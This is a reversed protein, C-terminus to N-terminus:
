FAWEAQSWDADASAGPFHTERIRLSRLPPKEDKEDLDRMTLPLRAPQLPLPTKQDACDVEIEPFGAERLAERISQRAVGPANCDCSLHGLVVRHLRRGQAAISVVLDATQDNSLHGHRSSIRQKTAWPRRTDNQLMAEDYNSEVFLTDVSRLRDRVVPTVHGIDSVIGLTSERGHIVFGVPDIADHPVSFSDVQLAGVRFGEGAEFIQWPVSSRMGERVIQATHATAFVPISRKRCFVDIGGSHDGHEHTLLIASIGNPDIGLSELRLMLQKASLGADILVRTDGACVVASNGSSGSGLVAFHLM